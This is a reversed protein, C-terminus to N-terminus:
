DFSQSMWCSAERPPEGPLARADAAAAAADGVFDVRCLVACALLDIIQVQRMNTLQGFLQGIQEGMGRQARPGRAKVPNLQVIGM